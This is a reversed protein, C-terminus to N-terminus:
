DADSINPVSSVDLATPERSNLATADPVFSSFTSDRFGIKDPARQELASTTLASRNRRWAVAAAREDM